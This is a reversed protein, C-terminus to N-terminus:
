PAIRNNRVFADHTEPLTQQFIREIVRAYERIELMANKDNRLNLFNMLSRANVKWFWETYVGFPLVNRALEKAWGLDLLDQYARMVHEYARQMIFLGNEINEQDDITEFIYAGPKGKQTRIADGAPMYCEEGSEVYRFSKANFSSIRHRLWEINVPVPAKIHFTFDVAEFPSGHKNVMLYNLLGREAKGFTSSHKGFSVRAFNVIRLDDGYMDYLQVHGKDLVKVRESSEV